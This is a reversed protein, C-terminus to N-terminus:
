REFDIKFGQTKSENTIDGRNITEKYALNNGKAAGTFEKEVFLQVNSSDVFPTRDRIVGLEYFHSVDTSKANIATPAGSGAAKLCFIDGTPMLQPMNTNPTFKFGDYTFEHTDIAMKIYGINGECYHTDNPNQFLHWEGLVAGAINFGREIVEYDRMSQIGFAATNPRWVLTVQTGSPKFQSMPTEFQASTDTNLAISTAAQISARDTLAGDFVEYKGDMAGSVEWTHPIWSHWLNPTLGSIVKYAIPDDTGVTGAAFDLEARNYTANRTLSCAVNEDGTLQWGGLDVTFDESDVTAKTGCLNQNAYTVETFVSENNPGATIDSGTSTFIRFTGTSSDRTFRIKYYEGPVLPTASLTNLGEQAGKTTGRGVSARTAKSWIQPRMLTDLGFEVNCDFNELNPTITSNSFAIFPNRTSTASSYAEFEVELIFDRDQLVSENVYKNISAYSSTGNLKVKKGSQFRSDDFIDTTANLGTPTISSGKVYGFNDLGLNTTATDITKDNIGADGRSRTEDSGCSMSLFLNQDGEIKNGAEDFAILKRGSSSDFSSTSTADIIFDEGYLTGMHDDIPSDHFTQKTIARLRTGNDIIEIQTNGTLGYHTTVLNEIRGGKYLTHINHDFFSIHLNYAANGLAYAQTPEDWYYWDGNAYESTNSLEIEVYGTTALGNAHGLGWSAELELHFQDQTSMTTQTADDLNFYHHHGDDTGIFIDRTHLEWTQLVNGSGPTISDRLRIIIREDRQEPTLGRFQATQHFRLGFSKVGTLNSGTQDFTQAKKSGQQALAGLGINEPNGSVVIDTDPFAGVHTSMDKVEFILADSDAKNSPGSSADLAFFFHEDNGPVSRIRKGITYSFEEVTSTETGNHHGAEHQGNTLFRESFTPKPRVWVGSMAWVGTGTAKVFITATASSATFSFAQSGDTSTTDSGLVGQADCDAKSILHSGDVATMTLSGAGSHEWCGYNVYYEQSPTLGTLVIGVYPETAGGNHELTLQNGTNYVKGSDAGSTDEKVAVSRIAYNCAPSADGVWMALVVSGGAPATFTTSYWGRAATSHTALSPLADIAARSATTAGEFVELYATGANLVEAHYSVEYTNGPTLGSIVRAAVPNADNVPFTAGSNSGSRHSIVMNDDMSGRLPDTNLLEEIIVDNRNLDSEDTGTGVNEVEVWGDLNTSFDSVYVPAPDPVGDIITWGDLGAGITFDTRLTPNNYYHELVFYGLRNEGAQQEFMAVFYKDNQYFDIWEYNGNTSARFGPTTGGGSANINSWEHGSDVDDIYATSLVTEFLEYLRIETTTSDCINLVRSGKTTGWGFGKEPRRGQSRNALDNINGRQTPNFNKNMKYVFCYGGSNGQKTAWFKGDPSVAM